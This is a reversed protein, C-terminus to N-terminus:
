KNRCLGRCDCRTVNDSYCWQKGDNECYVAAVKDCSFNLTDGIENLIFEFTKREIIGIFTNDNDIFKVRLWVNYHPQRYVDTLGNNLRVMVLDGTKFEKKTIGHSVLINEFIPNLNSM